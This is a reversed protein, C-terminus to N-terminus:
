ETYHSGQEHNWGGAYMKASDSSVLILQGIRTGTAIKTLGSCMNHIMFGVHGKFGSDYIGSTLFIGNRNFTSRIVLMAAIGEPLDVYVNSMGDYSGKELHWVDLKSTRDLIPELKYGGRMQKGSESIVFPNSENLVFLTDLSFDLANPQIQIEPNTVGTIWGKEIATKPNIFM